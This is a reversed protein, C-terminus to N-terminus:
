LRVLSGTCAADSAAALAARAREARSLTSRDDVAAMVAVAARREKVEKAPELGIENEAVLCLGFEDAVQRARLQDSLESGAAHEHGPPVVRRGRGLWGVRGARPIRKGRPIKDATDM